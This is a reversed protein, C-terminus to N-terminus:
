KEKQNISIKKHVYESMRREFEEGKNQISSDQNIENTIASIISWRVGARAFSLYRSEFVEPSDKFISWARKAQHEAIGIPTYKNPDLTPKGEQEREKGRNKIVKTDTQNDETVNDQTELSSDNQLKATDMKSDDGPYPPIKSPKTRDNQLTQHDYWTPFEIYTGREDSWRHILGQTQIEELMKEVDSDKLERLPFVTGRISTPGGKM